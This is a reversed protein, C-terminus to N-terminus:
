AAAQSDTIQGIAQQFKTFLGGGSEKKGEDLVLVLLLLVLFARSLPRLTDIYGLAGLIGIAILWYIFNNQGFLDGQLLKMLETTTGRFGAIIFVLGIFAFAFPM